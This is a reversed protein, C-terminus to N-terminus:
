PQSGWVRGARADVSLKNRYRERSATRRCARCHRAGSPRFQTNMSDFPHGRLCHTKAALAATITNGRMTNEGRTVVEMHSPRICSRTRCLHDITMGPPSDGRTLEYAVRHVLSMRGDRQIVGYGRETRARQWPWCGGEDEIAGSWLRENLPLRTGRTLPKFSLLVAGSSDKSMTSM